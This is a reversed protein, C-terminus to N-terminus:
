NQEKDKTTKWETSISSNKIINKVALVQLHVEKFVVLIEENHVTVVTLKDGENIEKIKIIILIKKRVIFSSYQM